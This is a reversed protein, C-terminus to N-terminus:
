RHVGAKHLRAVVRACAVAHQRSRARSVAPRGPTEAEAQERVPYDMRAARLEVDFANLIANEVMRLGDGPRYAALSAIDGNM